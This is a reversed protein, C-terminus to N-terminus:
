RACPALPRGHRPDARRGQGRRDLLVTTPVAQLPVTGQLAAIATGTRTRSRPTPCPSPASSRRRPAQRTSQHQHRGRARGPRRVRDRDAGPRAGRRPVAPVGRVLHQGPRRGRAVGLRRRGGRRLRDRHPRDARAAPGADWTTVSRDGSVYAPAREGDSPTARRGPELVRRALPDDRRAATVAVAVARADVPRMCGVCDPASLRGPGATRRRAPGGAPESYDIGVLTEGDYRLSTLSAVSCERRRPDHWLRSGSLAQRTVWIPLQHSVVVAEHGTPPM